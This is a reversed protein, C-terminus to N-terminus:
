CIWFQAALRMRLFCLVPWIVGKSWVIWQSGVGCIIWYSYIHQRIETVEVKCVRRYEGSQKLYEWDESEEYWVKCQQNRACKGGKAERCSIVKGKRESLFGSQVRENTVTLCKKGWFISSGHKGSRLSSDEESGVGQKNHTTTFQALTHTSTHTPAQM